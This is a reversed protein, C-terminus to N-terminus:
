TILAVIIRRRNPELKSRVLDTLQSLQQKLILLYDEVAYMEIQLDNIAMESGETWTIQSVTSIVQSLHQPNLVWDTREPQDMDNGYFSNYGQKVKAQITM